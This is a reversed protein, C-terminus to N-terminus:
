TEQKQRLVYQKGEKTNESADGIYSQEVEGDEIWTVKYKGDNEKEARFVFDCTPFRKKNNEDLEFNFIDKM